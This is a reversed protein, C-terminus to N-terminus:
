GTEVEGSSHLTWLANQRESNIILKTLCEGIDGASLSTTVENVFPHIGPKSKRCVLVAIRFENIRMPLMENEKQVCRVIGYLTSNAIALAALNKSGTQGMRGTIFTYSSRSSDHRIHSRVAKYLALHPACRDLAAHCDAMSLESVSGRQFDGGFCSVVHDLKGDKAKKKILEILVDCEVQNEIDIVPTELRELAESSKKNGLHQAVEEVLGDRSIERRIPAFVYAGHNLLAAVIGSGIIGSGGTVLAYQNSYEM